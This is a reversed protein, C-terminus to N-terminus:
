QLEFPTKLYLMAAAIRESIERRKDQTIGEQQHPPELSAAKSLHIIVSFPDGIREVLIRLIHDSECYEKTYRDASRVIFNFKSEVWQPGSRIFGFHEIADHAAQITAKSKDM